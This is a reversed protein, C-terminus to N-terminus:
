CGPLKCVRLKLALQYFSSTKRDSEDLFIQPGYHINSALLLPLKWFSCIFSQPIEWLKAVNLRFFSLGDCGRCPFMQQKWSIGRDRSWKWESDATHGHSIVDILYYYRAIINELMQRTLLRIGGTEGYGAERYGYATASQNWRASILISRSTTKKCGSKADAESRSDRRTVCVINSWLHGRNQCLDIYINYRQRSCPFSPTDRSKISINIPHKHSLAWASLTNKKEVAHWQALALVSSISMLNPEFYFIHHFGKLSATRPLSRQWVRVRQCCNCM